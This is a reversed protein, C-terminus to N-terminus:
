ITRVAIAPFGLACLMLLNVYVAALLDDATVGWGGPLKQSQRIPWPKAVDFLRFAVFVGLTVPWTEPGLFDDPTPMSGRDLCFRGVWCAFCLPVATIEDLVVSSPDHQNLVREAAGCAWVSLAIGAVTGAAYIWLSGTSSLMLFWVVGLFSGFTGPGVPIRGLGFGQALWVNFENRLASLVAALEDPSRSRIARALWEPLKRAWYLIFIAILFLLPIEWGSLLAFVIDDM